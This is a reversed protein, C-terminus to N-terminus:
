GQRDQLARKIWDLAEDVKGTHQAIDERLEVVSEELAGVAARTEGVARGLAENGIELHHVRGELRKVAGEVLLLRKDDARRPNAAVFERAKRRERGRMTLWTTAAGILGLLAGNLAENM